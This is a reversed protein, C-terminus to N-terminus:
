IWMLWFVIDATAAGASRVVTVSGDAAVTLTFTDVGDTYLTVVGGGPIAPALRNDAAATGGGSESVVWHAFLAATVDGAGNPILTVAGGALDNVTIFLASGPARHLHLPGFPIATGMGIDGSTDMTFDTYNAAFTWGRAIHFYNDTNDIGMSYGYVGQIDVSFYPDGGAGAARAAPM